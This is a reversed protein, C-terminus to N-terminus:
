RSVEVLASAVAQAANPMFRSRAAESMQRLQDRDGALTDLMVALSEASLSKQPALKAAGADSLHRANQTQHDDVAFPFPVLISPKALASLETVTMAGSRCIVLDAQRYAHTMEEIFESVVVNDSSLSSYLEQVKQANGDGCQHHISMPHVSLAAAQPVLENLVQAGRSGGVVLVRLPATIDAPLKLPESALLEMEARVPNGIHLAGRSAPFVNPWASFVRTAMRSLWQNTMGAVANQEHLVLPTRLLLAALGVPGSVFGGMGLVASPNIVRLQRASQFVARLLKMPALLTQLLGKGRLGFIDIWRMDIGNSPVMQAELGERTGFWIVPINQAKLAAAVALAPVVHGGTGGAAIVVTRSLSTSGQSQVSANVSANM